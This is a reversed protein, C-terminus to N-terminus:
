QIYYALFKAGKNTRNQKELQSSNISLNSILLSVAAEKSAAQVELRAAATLSICGEATMVVLQPHEKV